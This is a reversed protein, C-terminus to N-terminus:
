KYLAKVQGWTTHETLGNRLSGVGTGAFWTGTDDRWAVIRWIPNEYGEVSALRVVFSAQIDSGTYMMSGAQVSLRYIVTKEYWTEGPYDPHDEPPIPTWTDDGAPYTLVLDIDSVPDVGQKSFNPNFINISAHLDETRDWPSHDVHGEDIDKQSFHFAFGVDLLESYRDINRVNYAMSLNYLVNDRPGDLAKFSSAPKPGVPDEHNCSVILTAAFVFVFLVLWIKRM